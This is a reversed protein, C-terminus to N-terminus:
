MPVYGKELERIRNELDVIDTARALFAERRRREAREFWNSVVLLIKAFMIMGGIRHESGQYTIEGIPIVRM